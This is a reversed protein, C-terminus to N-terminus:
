VFTGFDVNNNSFNYTGVFEGMNMDTEVPGLFTKFDLTFQNSTLLLEVISNLLPVNIGYVSTQVDGHYIYFNQLDLNGGLQPSTDEIVNATSKLNVTDDTHTITVSNDTSTLTKFELNALNKQAFISTGSGLNTGNIINVTSSLTNFNANVKEFATRLDDGTGDNAYNGLNIPQITM